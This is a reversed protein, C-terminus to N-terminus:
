STRTAETLPERVRRRAIAGALPGPRLMKIMIKIYLGPRAVRRAEAM